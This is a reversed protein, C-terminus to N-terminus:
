SQVIRVQDVKVAWIARCDNLFSTSMSIALLQRCHISSVSSCERIRRPEDFTRDSVDDQM